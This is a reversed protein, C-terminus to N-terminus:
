IKVLEVRRNNAKGEASGNTDLPKSEGWGKAELRDAAINFTTILYNRVSESRKQSLSMNHDDGGDSDTHGEISLRLAADDQLLEGIQKLTKYSLGKIKHSDSDFLIGHTVIKGTEALQDRMSKGGEAFRYSKIMCFNGEDKYPYMRIKFGAPNFGDVKPVNAVRVEDIYCKISRKTAMIRM